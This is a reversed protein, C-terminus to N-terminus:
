TSKSIGNQIKEYKVKKTQLNQGQKANSEGRGVAVKAIAVRYAPFHVNKRKGVARRCIVKAFHPRKCLKAQPAQMQLVGAGRSM